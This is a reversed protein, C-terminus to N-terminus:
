AGKLLKVLADLPATAIYPSLVVLTRGLTRLWTPALGREELWRSRESMGLEPSVSYSLGAARNRLILSAPVYTAALFASYVAGSGELSAAIVPRLSAQLSSPFALIIWDFFLKFEVTALVLLAGGAYLVVQLRAVQFRLHEEPRAEKSDSTSGITTCAMAVLAAAAAFTVARAISAVTQLFHGVGPALPGGIPALVQEVILFTRAKSFAVVAAALIAIALCVSAVARAKRTLGAFAPIVAFFGGIIVALALSVLLVLASFWLFRGNLALSGPFGPDARGAFPIM